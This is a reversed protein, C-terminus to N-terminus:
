NNKLQIYVPFHDSYGGFYKNGLFTRYPGHQKSEKYYMWIPDYVNASKEKYLIRKGQTFSPSIMIQDLMDWSGDYKYSGKGEKMLLYFPNYLDDSHCAKVDNKAKLVEQISRNNPEDNFDGMVIIKAKNATQYLSDVIGRVKSAVLLRNGESNEKGSVRSPWHNVIVHITDSKVTGSVLLVDRTKFNKSSANDISYVTSNLPTFISPKYLLAVDIGRRDNSEFQIIKYNRDMLYESQILKELVANNEVESLGIIEPGNSDGLQHIVQGINQIKKFYKLSNWRSKSQPLFKEDNIRPDDITDFLNEVNYFAITIAKPDDEKFVESKMNFLLMSIVMVFMLGLYKLVKRKTM